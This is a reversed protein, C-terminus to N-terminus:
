KLSGWDELAPSVIDGRVAGKGHLFDYIEDADQCCPTLKAVPKGHKTIVIAQRKSRVEDMVALCRAKFLGAAMTRM